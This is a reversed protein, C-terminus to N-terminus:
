AVVWERTEVVVQLVRLSHQAVADTVELLLRLYVANTQSLESGPTRASCGATAGSDLSLVQPPLQGLPHLVHGHPLEGATMSPPCQHLWPREDPQSCSEHSHMTCALLRKFAAADVSLWSPLKVRPMNRVHAAAFVM